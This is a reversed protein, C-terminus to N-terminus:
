GSRDRHGRERGGIRVAARTRSRPFRPRICNAPAARARIGRGAERCFRHRCGRAADPKRRDHRLGRYNQQAPMPPARMRRCNRAIRGWRSSSRKEAARRFGPFIRSPFRSSPSIRDSMSNGCFVCSACRASAPLLERVRRRRLIMCFSGPARAANGCFKWFARRACLSHRSLVVGAHHVASVGLSRAMGFGGRAVGCARLRWGKEAWRVQVTEFALGRARATNVFNGAIIRSAMPPVIGGARAAPFGTRCSM